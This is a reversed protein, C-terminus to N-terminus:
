FRVLMFYISFTDREIKYGVAVKSAFFELEGLSWTLNFNKWGLRWGMKTRKFM